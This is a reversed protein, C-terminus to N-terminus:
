LWKKKKFYFLQFIVILVMIGWLWYYANYFHLEPLNDFNMGYIGALFTLPIFIASVITLVKMVHNARNTLESHYLDNLNNLMDRQNDIMEIVRMVHDNLDRVFIITGRDVFDSDERAFRGVVDRLPMVARRIESLQRKLQYINSRTANETNNLIQTEISDIAIETKDLIIFYNDVIYDLLAYMLYDAKRQRVKGLSQHLRERIPAFLDEKDEQFTLLYNKGLIFSVQEPIVYNETEDLRLTRVVLFINNPYDEWKPRQRTNLVDELALSHMNFTHGIQEVLKVDNLGRVDYWTVEGETYQPCDFGKLLQETIKTENYQLISVHPNTVEIDGTYVLSGPPLGTKQKKKKRSM